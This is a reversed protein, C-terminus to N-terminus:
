RDHLSHSLLWQYINLDYPDFRTDYKAGVSGGVMASLNFVAHHIAHEGGLLLSLKPLVRPQCNELIANYVRITNIFPIEEDKTAHFMWIPVREINCFNNASPDIDASFAPSVPAIAAIKDPFDKAYAASLFGGLSYGALYIRSIDINYARVAYEFFADLRNKYGVSPVAGLQPALVVFPLTNDWQGDEILKPIGYNNIVADLALTPDTTNTFELNGGGGHLYILLPPKQATTQGYNVPLHELYGFNAITSGLPRRSLRKASDGIVRVIRIQEIATLGSSDTVSYRIVYDGITGTDVQSMVDIQSSIDGDQEDLATAGMELYNEGLTLLETRSGLLTVTPRDPNDSFDPLPADWWIEIPPPTQILCADKVRSCPPTSNSDGCGSLLLISFFLGFAKLLRKATSHLNLIAMPKKKRECVSTTSEALITYMVSRSLALKYYKYYTM